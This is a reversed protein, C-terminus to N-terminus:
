LGGRVAAGAPVCPPPRFTVLPLRAWPRGQQCLAVPRQWSGTVVARIGAGVPVGVARALQGGPGPPLGWSPPAEM